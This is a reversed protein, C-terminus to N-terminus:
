SKLARCQPINDTQLPTNLLGGVNLNTAAATRGSASLM